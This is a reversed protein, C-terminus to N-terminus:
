SLFFGWIILKSKKNSFFRNIKEYNLFLEFYFTFFKFKFVRPLRKCELFNKYCLFHLAWFSSCEWVLSNHDMIFLIPNPAGKNKSRGRKKYHLWKRFIFKKKWKFNLFIQFQYIVRFCFLSDYKLFNFGVLEPKRTMNYVNWYVNSNLLRWLTRTLRWKSGM